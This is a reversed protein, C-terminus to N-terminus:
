RGFDFAIAAGVTLATLSLLAYGALPDFVFACIVLGILGTSMLVLAAIEWRSRRPDFAQDPFPSAM